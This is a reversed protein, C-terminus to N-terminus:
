NPTIKKEGPVFVVPERDQRVYYFKNGALGTFKQESGGPWYITLEDISTSTGLGFNLRLDSVSLYSQAGMVQREVTRDGIKAVVRTGIASRNAKGGELWLTIFGAKAGGTNIAIQATGGNNNTVLDLLGDGNLDGTAIGRSVQKDQLAAGAIDSIDIFKGNGLNEYLSNPQAFTVSVSNQEINDEIHGNAVILDEDGDNDADFFDIGFKLRARSSAGIGVRDTVDEFLLPEHQSYIATAENQFTTDAIDLLGNGDFDSFDAGMNAQENGTESYAAGSLQAIDKFKGTGDNIWLQNATSDNAVYIDTDGDKDIDGIALALGKQPTSSIGATGSIEVFNGGDNRWLQDSVAKYVIPTSYVLLKNHYTQQRKEPSYDVYRVIYLDLDGDNDIDLFGASTAWAGDSRLGTKATVDEFREGNNKLLRNNGDFSTLFIDPWGDNDYDGVAVGMGYGSSELSWEATRDTFKGQGDNIYLRTRANESRKPDAISGSNVLIIDPAGDRNVDAIAVGSGMIEPMLKAESRNPMHTFSIGSGSTGDAFSISTGVTNPKSNSSIPTAPCGTMLMASGVLIFVSIAKICM